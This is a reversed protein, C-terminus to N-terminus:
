GFLELLEAALFFSGSCYLLSDKDMKQNALLYAKEPQSVFHVQCQFDAQMEGLVEQLQELKLARPNKQYQTIVLEDAKDLLQRLMLRYDKDSSTAFLAIKRKGPYHDDLAALGAEISAPNHATDVIVPPSLEVLQMRGKPLCSRIAAITKPLSLEWGLRQLECLTAIAAAVNEAQHRGLLGTEWTSNNWSSRPGDELDRLTFDVLAASGQLGVSWDAQYDRGIMLLPASESACRQEFVKQAEPDSASVVVPVERKIIGAKEGAIEAITDGLIKQHDLSISTIVCLAPLCVNTSDLRGGLGVELVALECRQRSFHLMGLATTLEFFTPPGFESQAMAEAVPRVEAVLEILETKGALEGDVNFREELSALHPSTYLGTKLHNATLGSAILNAVTGKGKTGAVHVIAYDEHPNGLRRLLERMRDLRYHQDTYKTQISKEFNIQGYLYAIAEEYADASSVADSCDQKGEMDPLDTLPELNSEFDM